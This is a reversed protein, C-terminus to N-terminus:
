PGCVGRLGLSGPKLLLEKLSKREKMLKEKANMEDITPVPTM